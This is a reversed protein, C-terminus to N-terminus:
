LDPVAMKKDNQIWIFIGLFFAFFIAGAQVELISEIMANFAVIVLFSLALYNRSRVFYIFSYFLLLLLIAVGFIGLTVTTQLFQNHANLRMVAPEMLKLEEYKKVLEDKVDGTGVGFWPKDQILKIAGEWVKLRLGTTHGQTEELTGSITNSMESWRKSIEPTFITIMLAGTLILILAILIKWPQRRTILFVITALLTLLLIMIGAKSSLLLLGGILFIIIPFLLIRWRQDTLKETFVIGHILFYIGFNLYMAFYGPHIFYSLKQYFFGDIGSESYNYAARLLCIVLATLCGLSFVIFIKRYSLGPHNGIGGFLIPFVLLSFKIQLDLWGYQMNVSWAMGLVYVLYLIISALAIRNSFITPLRKRFGSDTIVLLALLGILINLVKPMFPILFAIALVLWEIIMYRNLSLNKM